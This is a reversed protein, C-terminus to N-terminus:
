VAFTKSNNTDSTNHRWFSCFFFKISACIKNLQNSSHYILAWSKYFLYQFTHLKLKLIRGRDAGTYKQLTEFLGRLIYPLIKWIGASATSAPKQSFERVHHTSNSVKCFYVPAARLRIRNQSQRIRISNTVLVSLEGLMTCLYEYM